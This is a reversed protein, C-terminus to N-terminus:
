TGTASAIPLQAAGVDPLCPASSSRTSNTGYRNAASSGDTRRMITPATTSPTIRPARGPSDDVNAQATISGTVNVIVGTIARNNRPQM